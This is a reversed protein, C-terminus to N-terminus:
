KKRSMAQMENFLNVGPEGNEYIWNPEIDAWSWGEKGDVHLKFKPKETPMEPHRYSLLIREVKEAIEQKQKLSFM